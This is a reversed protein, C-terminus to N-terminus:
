CGRAFAGQYALKASETLMFKPLKWWEQPAGVMRVTGDYCREFIRRARYVHFQSTVVDLVNLDRERAIRTVNRAEGRTSSSSFCVVDFRTKGDCLRHELKLRSGRSVILLPAVGEQM